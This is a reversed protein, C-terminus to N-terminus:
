CNRNAIGLPQDTNIVGIEIFILTLKKLKSEIFTEKPM